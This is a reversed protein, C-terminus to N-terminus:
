IVNLFHEAVQADFPLQSTFFHKQYILKWELDLSRFISIESKWVWNEVEFIM